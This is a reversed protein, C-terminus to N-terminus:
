SGLVYKHIQSSYHTQLTGQLIAEVGHCCDIEALGEDVGLICSNTSLLGATLCDDALCSTTLVENDAPWGSRPDIIHGFKRGGIMRFRRGNGSTALAKGTFALRFAAAEEERADEVGVVWCPGQPPEGIAAVDRGLDVLCDAIEFQKAFAIVQDVAYEKGFGGIELGMGKEPLFVVGSGWEVAPWSVLKRVEEVEDRTPLIDRKGAEDWLRTLPFSTPDILGQSVRYTHECLKLVEEEDGSVEVARVGAEANVRCLLSGPKFRSWKEEFERLWSLAVRRFEKAGEVSETRFQVECQTGLARFKLKFLGGTLNATM